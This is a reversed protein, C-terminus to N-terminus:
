PNAIGVGTTSLLWERFLVFETGKLTNESYMKWIKIFYCLKCKFYNIYLYNNYILHNISSFTLISTVFTQETIAFEFVRNSSHDYSWIYISSLVLPDMLCEGILRPESMFDRAPIPIKKTIYECIVEINHKLQASIPIVPAGEAVTGVFLHFHSLLQVLLQFVNASHLVIIYRGLM